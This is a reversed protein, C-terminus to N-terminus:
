RGRFILGLVFGIGLASFVTKMPNERVYDEGDERLTRVRVKADDWAQTAKDRYDEAMATTASKLHEAARKAHTKSSKLKNQAGTTGGGQNMNEDAV